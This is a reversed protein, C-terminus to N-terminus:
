VVVRGIEEIAVCLSAFDAGSGGWEEPFVLGFLGLDGMAHVVEVPFRRERDWRPAHPAIEAEAFEGYRMLMEGLKAASIVDWPSYTLVKRLREIERQDSQRRVLSLGVDFITDPNYREARHRILAQRRPVIMDLRSAM